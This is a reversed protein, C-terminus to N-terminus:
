AFSKAFRLDGNTFYRIDKIGYRVAALRSVGIGWAFGSWVAPDLGANKIVNPHVMGAGVLEIRGSNKCLACGSWGCIPCQADIEFGPDVFPFFSPRLRIKTQKWLIGSLLKQITDKFQPIGINKDIVLGEAYRFMVDHSADTSEFRYVRGPSGLRLPVGYKMIDQVQHASNHTRLILPEGSPDADQLYITDHMDTAPHTLPINVSEFNEHKTVIEHGYDIIFWMSRYVEEINRRVKALVSYAGQDLPLGDLSIDVMDEQLKQNIADTSLAREKAEYAETITDKAETLTKGLEKKEEPSANGMQKFGETVIGKKGLYKQFFEELQVMDKIGGLEKVIAKIDLM